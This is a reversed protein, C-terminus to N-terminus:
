QKNLMKLYLFINAIFQSPSHDSNKTLLVDMISNNEPSSVGIKCKAYSHASIYRLPFKNDFNLDILVDRIETIFSHIYPSEPENLNKLEKASFIDFDSKSYNLSTPIVKKDYFGIARVHKGDQKLESIIKKVLEFLADNSAEFVIGVTRVAEYNLFAKERGQLKLAKQLQKEGLGEKLKKIM